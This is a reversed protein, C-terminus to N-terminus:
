GLGMYELKAPIIVYFTSGKGPESELFIKGEMASVVKATIALGAGIGGYQRSLADDGQRFLDFIMRHQEKPIGVGTDKVMFKLMKNDVSEFGFDISGSNTYKIANNFLKHLILNLKTSDTTIYSMLVKKDPSFHLSIEDEKGSEKLQKELIAKNELFFEMGRFTQMRMKVLGKEIDSISFMDEIIAFLNEGSEKIMDAYEMVDQEETSAKIIDSLGLIHNLPTRLEHNMTALFATKVKDSEEAKNKAIILNQHNTRAILANGFNYAIGKAANIEYDQWQKVDKTSELCLFGFAKNENMLPVALLTKINRNNIVDQENTASLPLEEDSNIIMHDNDSIINVWWSYDAVPISDSKILSEGKEAWEHTCKIFTNKNRFHFISMRDVSLHLGVNKLTQEIIADFSDDTVNVLDGITQVMIHEIEIRKDLEQRSSKLENIDIITGSIKQIKNNSDKKTIRGRVQVWTWEGRSTKLRFQMDLHNVHGRLHQTVIEMAKQKDDPHMLSQMIRLTITTDEPFRRGVVEFFKENVTLKNTPYDWEWIGADSGFIVSELLARSENLKQQALREETMDRFIGLTSVQNGKSDMQPTATVIINVRNSAPTIIELDYASKEGEKRKKNENEIIQKGDDDLFEFLSRGILEGDNVGFIAHAAPNAFIFKDDLGSIGIGEGQNEVLNRFMLESKRLEEEAEIRPTIDYMIALIADKGYYEYRKVYLDVHIEEGTSIFAKTQYNNPVAEGRMRRTYQTKIIQAEKPPFFQVFDKGIIDEKSYHTRDSLTQNVYVVTGDQIICVLAHINELLHRFQNDTNQDQKDPFDNKHTMIM